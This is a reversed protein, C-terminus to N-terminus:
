FFFFFKRNQYCPFLPRALVAHGREKSLYLFIAFLKSNKAVYRGWIKIVGRLASLRRGRDIFPHGLSSDLCLEDVGSTSLGELGVRTVHIPQRPSALQSLHKTSFPKLVMWLRCEHSVRMPNTVRVRVRRMLEMLLATLVM